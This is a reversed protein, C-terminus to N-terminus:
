SRTESIDRHEITVRHGKLKLLEFLASSIAVSRHRGGTCGIGVILQFKGERTYYPVLFELLDVLRDLFDKTESFSFIYNKVDIHEGSFDKLEDIYFPNPLFRVDFVLDADLLIGRRFGFSIVSISINSKTDSEGFMESLIEKIQKPQMHTTDITYTAKEQVKKLREREIHIGQILRGEKVLPHMRRSEKYRKILVEDQADLFLIEYTFGDDRLIQLCELLDDFFGGGRIDVVVAAKGKDGWSQYCLEAFKPMLKPPLNDICFFGLDEMYRIALTKGAGSLGTIVIFRM